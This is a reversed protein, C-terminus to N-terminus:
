SPGQRRPPKVHLLGSSIGLDREAHTLIKAITIESENSFTEWNVQRPDTTRSPHLNADSLLIHNCIGFACGPHRGGGSIVPLRLIFSNSNFRRFGSLVDTLITFSIFQDFCKLYSVNIIYMVYTTIDHFLFLHM